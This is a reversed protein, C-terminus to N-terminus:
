NPFCDQDKVMTFKEQVLFYNSQAFVPQPLQYLYKRAIKALVPYNQCNGQWWRLPDGLKFDLLPASIYQDVESNHTSEELNSSASESIIELLCGWLKSKKTSGGVDRTIRKAPPEELESEEVFYTYEIVIFNGQCM